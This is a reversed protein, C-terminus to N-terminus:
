IETDETQPQTKKLMTGMTQSQSCMEPMQAEMRCGPQMLLDKMETM